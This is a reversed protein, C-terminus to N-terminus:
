AIVEVTPDTDWGLLELMRRVPASAGTITLRRGTRGRMARMGAVDVYRLEALELRMPEDLHADLVSALADACAFDLEGALRLTQGDDIRAAVLYGTRVLAALEPSLDVSHAAAVEILMAPEFDGHPYNCLAVVNGGATMDAFRREYEPLREYGPIDRHAWGMEGTISLAPYGDALAQDRDAQIANLMREVDFSSDPSYASPASRLELQGREIAQAVDERGDTLEQALADLDQTECLYIAKHGRAVADRVFAAAVVRRDAVQAFRCCAHEGPRIAVAADPENTSM